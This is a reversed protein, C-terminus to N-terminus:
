VYIFIRGFVATQPNKEGAKFQWQLGHECFFGIIRFKQKDMHSATRFGSEHIEAMHLKVTTDHLPNTVAFKFNNDYCKGQLFKSFRCCVATIIATTNVTNKLWHFPASIL